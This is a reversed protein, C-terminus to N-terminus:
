RWPWLQMPLGLGWKFLLACFLTLVAAWLLAERWRFEASGMAAVVITVYSAVVLGMSRVTLAFFLIAATVLLPGRIGYRELQNGDTTLGIVM